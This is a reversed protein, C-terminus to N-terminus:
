DLALKQFGSSSAWGGSGQSSSWSLYCSQVWLDPNSNQEAVKLAAKLEKSLM